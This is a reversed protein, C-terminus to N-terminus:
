IPRAYEIKSITPPALLLRLMKNKAVRPKKNSPQAKGLSDSVNSGSSLNSAVERAWNAVSFSSSVDLARDGCPLAGM